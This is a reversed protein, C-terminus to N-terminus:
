AAPELTSEFYAMISLRDVVPYDKTGIVVVKHTLNATRVAQAIEEITHGTRIAALEYTLWNATYLKKRPFRM